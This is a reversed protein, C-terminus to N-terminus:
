RTCTCGGVWVSYGFECEGVLGRMVCVWPGVWVGGM